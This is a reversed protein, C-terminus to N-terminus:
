VSGKPIHYAAGFLRFHEDVRLYPYLLCQQPCYGMIGNIEISGDDPKLMGAIIKLWHAKGAEMKVLLVFWKDPMVRYHAAM